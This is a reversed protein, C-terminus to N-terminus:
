FPVIYDLLSSIRVKCSTGKRAKKMLLYEEMEIYKEYEKVFALMGNIFAVILAVMVMYAIDIRFEIFFDVTMISSLVVFFQAVGVFLSKKFSVKRLYGYGNSTRSM